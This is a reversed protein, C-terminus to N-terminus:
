IKYDFKLMKVIILLQFFYFSWLDIVTKLMYKGKIAQVKFRALNKSGFPPKKTSVRKQPCYM